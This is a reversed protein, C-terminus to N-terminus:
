TKKHKLQKIKEGSNRGVPNNNSKKGSNGGPNKLIERYSKELKKGRIHGVPNNDSKKKLPVVM